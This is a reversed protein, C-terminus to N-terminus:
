HARRRRRTWIATGGALAAGGLLWGREDVGDGGTSGDGTQIRVPPTELNGVKVAAWGLTGEAQSGILYMFNATGEAYEVGQPAALPKGGSPPRVSIQYRGAGILRSAEARPALATLTPQDDLIVNIPEAAAAHRVVLRSEGAPIKGLDDAYATLTPKGRRDLHAVLSGRFGPPVSVTQRLLPKQMADAGAERIVVEHEGAPIPLPDTSREPRFTPLVLTGDLYIDAVLGRLGHVVRVLGDPPTQAIVPAGALGGAGLVGAAVTAWLARSRSLGYFM